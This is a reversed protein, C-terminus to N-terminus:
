FALPQTSKYCNYMVLDTSVFIVQLYNVAYKTYDKVHQEQVLDELM